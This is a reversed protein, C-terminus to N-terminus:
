GKLNNLKIIIKFQRNTLITDALPLNLLMVLFIFTCYPNLKAFLLFYGSSTWFVITCIYYSGGPLSLEELLGECVPTEQKLGGHAGGPEMVVIISNRITVSIKEQFVLTFM